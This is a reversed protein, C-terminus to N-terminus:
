NHLTEELHLSLQLTNICAKSMSFKPRPIGKGLDGESFLKRDNSLQCM